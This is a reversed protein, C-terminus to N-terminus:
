ESFMVLPDIWGAGQVRQPDVIVGKGMPLITKFVRIELHLHPATSNGSNGLTGVQTDSTVTDGQNVNIGLLHAYYVYAYYNTWGRATMVNRANVPLDQWDMRVVVLNGFGYNWPDPKSFAEIQQQPNLGHALFNPREPTCVGCYSALHVTGKGRAFIPLGTGVRSVYDVGRHIGYPVTVWFRWGILYNGVVPSLFKAQPNPNTNDPARNVNIEAYLDHLFPHGKDNRMMWTTRQLGRSQPAVLDVVLQVVEGPKAPPVVISNVSSMSVGSYFSLRYGANWTTNGANRVRWIKRFPNLAPMQMGDPITVDAEWWVEDRPPLTSILFPEPNVVDDVVYGDLGNQLDQLTFFLSVGNATGSAGAIGIVTGANVYSGVKVSVSALHGYWTVYTKGYWSHEICVYNGYGQGYFAVKQVIGRQAALVELPKTPLPTQPAFLMGERRGYSAPANFRAQITYAWTMPFQLAFPPVVPPEVVSAARVTADSM